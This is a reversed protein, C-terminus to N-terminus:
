PITKSAVNSVESTGGSTSYASVAFFWTGSALNTVTYNTVGENTVDIRQDLLNAARGYSVYFGDLNTLTSGDSNQTPPTWNILATGNSQGVVNITFAALNASVRGDNVTIIINSHTGVHAAAPTGSITGNASNLTAWAPLNAVSFALTNGDPDSATPTFTYSQGVTAGTGPTGGIVPPRNPAQTVTIAFAALSVTATGDGVTIRINSFTGLQTALPTGSLRGTATDFTAWTPRNQVGFTLANGDPDSATPAFTYTTTAAITPPPTGSIVPARNTPATASVQVNFTSLATSTLGDSVRIVIGNTTGVNGAAPTGSLRGTSTSFTAWTPRNDIAFTLANGDPDVADPQFAYASGATVTTAPTGSITPARNVPDPTPTPPTPTTARARIQIRFPELQAVAASDTVEITIAQTMGVDADAPTGTVVGTTASIAAWAPLNTASFTLSDGDPDGARPAFSYTSGADVGVGPVGGITPPRNPVEEGDSGCAALVCTAGFALFLRALSRTSGHLM